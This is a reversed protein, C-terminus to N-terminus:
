GGRPLSRRRDPPTARVRLPTQGTMAAYGHNQTLKELIPGSGISRDETDTSAELHEALSDFIRDLATPASQLAQSQQRYDGDEPDLFDEGAGLARQRVAGDYGSVLDMVAPYGDFAAREEESVLPATLAAQRRCLRARATRSRGRKGSKGTRPPRSTLGPNRGMM